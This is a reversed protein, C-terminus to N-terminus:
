RYCEVHWCILMVTQGGRYHSTICFCLKHPSLRMNVVLIVWIQNVLLAILMSVVTFYRLMERKEGYRVFLLVVLNCRLQM